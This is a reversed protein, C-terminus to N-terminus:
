RKITHKGIWLMLHIQERGKDEVNLSIQKLSDEEFTKETLPEFENYPLKITQTSQGGMGKGGGQLNWGSTLSRYRTGCMCNAFESRNV